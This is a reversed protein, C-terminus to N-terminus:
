ATRRANKVVATQRETPESAVAAALAELAKVHRGFATRGSPTLRAWTRQRGDTAAKRLSVYGAEVLAALHKSMVSDSAGTVKRLLAFEAEQAQALVAAIQLRAPPHLVADFGTPVDM